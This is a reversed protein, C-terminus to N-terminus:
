RSRRSDPRRLALLAAAVVFAGGVLVEAQRESAAMDAEDRPHPLASRARSRRHEHRRLSSM